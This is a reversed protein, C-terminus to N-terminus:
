AFTKVLKWGIDLFRNTQSDTVSVKGHVVENRISSFELFADRETETILDNKALEEVIARTNKRAKGEIVGFAQAADFIMREVLNAARIVKEINSVSSGIITDYEKFYEQWNLSAPKAPLEIEQSEQENGVVSKELSELRQEFKAKVGAIEFESIPPLDRLIYPLLIAIAAIAFLILSVNDFTLTPQVIRGIIIAIATFAVLYLPWYTKWYKKKPTLKM